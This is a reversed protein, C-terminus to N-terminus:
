RRCRCGQAVTGILGAAWRPVARRLPVCKCGEVFIARALVTATTTGDGAVDNTKSAVQRVLQAGMNEHKDAFDLAKAVTVGASPRADASCPSVATRM